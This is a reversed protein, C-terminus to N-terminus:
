TRARYRGACRWALLLILLARCAYLSMSLGHLQMFTWRGATTRAADMMPQLVEYGLVVTLLIALLVMLNGSLQSHVPGGQGASESRVIARELVLMVATMVLSVKAEVFFYRGAIQGAVSKDLMQFLVPAGLAGITLLMGAWLGAMMAQLRALM